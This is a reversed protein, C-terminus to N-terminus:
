VKNARGSPLSVAVILAITIDAVAIMLESILEM